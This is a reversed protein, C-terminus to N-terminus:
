VLIQRTKNLLQKITGIYKQDDDLITYENKNNDQFIVNGDRGKKFHGVAFTLFELNNLQDTDDQALEVKVYNKGWEYQWDATKIDFEVQLYKSLIDHKDEGKAITIKNLLISTDEYLFIYDFENNMLIILFEDTTIFQMDKAVEDFSSWVTGM